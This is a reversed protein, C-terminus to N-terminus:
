LSYLDFDPNLELPEFKEFSLEDLDMQYIPKPSFCGFFFLTSFLSLILLQKKM